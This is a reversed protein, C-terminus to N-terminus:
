PCKPTEWRPIGAVRITCAGRYGTHLLQLFAKSRAETDRQTNSFRNGLTGKKGVWGFERVSPRQHQNKANPFAKVLYDFGLRSKLDANPSPKM